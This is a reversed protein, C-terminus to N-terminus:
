LTKSALLNKKDSKDEEKGVVCLCADISNQHEGEQKANCSRLLNAFSHVFGFCERFYASTDTSKFDAVCYLRENLTLCFVVGEGEESLKIDFACDSLGAIYTCVDFFLAVSPYARNLEEICGIGSLRFSSSVCVRLEASEGYKCLRVGIKSGDAVEEAAYIMMVALQLYNTMPINEPIYSVSDVDFDESYETSIGLNEFKSILAETTCRIDILGRKDLSEFRKDSIGLLVTAFAAKEEKSLVKGTDSIVMEPKEKERFFLIGAFRRECISDFVALAYWVGEPGDTTFAFVEGDNSSAFHAEYKLATEPSMAKFLSDGECLWGLQSKAWSNMVAIYSGATCIVAPVKEFYSKILNSNM